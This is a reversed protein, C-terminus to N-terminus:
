SFVHCTRQAAVAGKMAPEIKQGKIGNCSANQAVLRWVFGM